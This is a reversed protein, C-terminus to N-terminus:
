EFHAIDHSIARMTLRKIPQNWSTADYKDNDSDPTSICIRMHFYFRLAILLKQNISCINYPFHNLWGQTFVRGM